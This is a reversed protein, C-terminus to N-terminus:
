ATYFQRDGADGLGPVIFGHENLHDDVAALHLTVDPHAATVAAVGEPAAILGAFKIRPVGWRKLVTIAARASGGTALMPDLVLALDVTPVPPLRNYYPVPELTAENRYMGLHWVPAAPLLELVAEAMGIGARLIPVLGIRDALAHGTAPALPTEVRTEVTRADALAEYALLWSLERVLARFRPPPTRRDRLETLKELVIPHRSVSVQAVTITREARPWASRCRAPGPM